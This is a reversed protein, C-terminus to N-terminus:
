KIFKKHDSMYCCSNHIKHMKQANLAYLFSKIHITRVKWWNWAIEQLTRVNKVLDSIDYSLITNFGLINRLITHVRFFIDSLPPWSLASRDMSVMGDLREVLQEQGNFVMSLLPPVVWFGNIDIALSWFVNLPSQKRWFHQLKCHKKCFWQYKWHERCVVYLIMYEATDNKIYHDYQYCKREKEALMRKM